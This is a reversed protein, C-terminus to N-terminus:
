FHKQRLAYQLMFCFKGKPIRVQTAESITIEYPISIIDGPRSQRLDVAYDLVEGKIRHSAHFCQQTVTRRHLPAWANRSGVSLRM